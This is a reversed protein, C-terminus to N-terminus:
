CTVFFMENFACNRPSNTQLSVEKPCQSFDCDWSHPLVPHPLNLIHQNAWPFRAHLVGQLWENECNCSLTQCSPLRLERDGSYLRSAETSSSTFHLWPIVEPCTFLTIKTLNPFIPLIASFEPASTCNLSLETVGPFVILEIPPLACADTLTMDRLEENVVQPIANCYASESDFTCFSNVTRLLLAFVFCLRPVAKKSYM